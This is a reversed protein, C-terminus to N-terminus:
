LLMPSEVMGVQHNPPITVRCKGYEIKNALRHSYSVKAELPNRGLQKAAFVGFSGLVALALVSSLSLLRRGRRYFSVAVYALTLISGITVVLIAAIIQKMVVSLSERQRNTGYFVEVERSKANSTQSAGEVNPFEAMPPVGAGALSDMAAAPRLLEAAENGSSAPEEAGVAAVKDGEDARHLLEVASQQSLALGGWSEEDAAGLGDPSLLSALRARGVESIRDSQMLGLLIDLAELQQEIDSAINPHWYGSLVSCFNQGLQPEEVLMLLRNWDPNPLECALACCALRQVDYLQANETQDALWPAISSGMESLAETIVVDSYSENLMSLLADFAVRSEGCLHMAYAANAQVLKNPSELGLIAASKAAAPDIQAAALLCSAQLQPDEIPQCNYLVRLILPQAAKGMAGLAGAAAVRVEIPSSTNSLINACLAQAEMSNTGSVSLARLWTVQSVLDSSSQTANIIASLGKPGIAGLAKAAAVKIYLEETDSSVIGVLEHLAVESRSGFRQLAKVSSLRADPNSNKLNAQITAIAQVAPEGIQGCADILIPLLASDSPTSALWGIISQVTTPSDSIQALARVGTMQFSEDSSSALAAVLKAEASRADKGINYLAEAADQQVAADSLLVSLWEVCAQRDFSSRSLSNVAALRIEYPQRADQGWAKLQDFTEQNSCEIQEVIRHAYDPLIGDVAVGHITSQLDAQITEDWIATAYEFLMSDLQTAEFKLVNMRIEAPFRHHDRLRRIVQMRSIMENPEYLGVVLDSADFPSSNATGPPTQIPALQVTEQPLTEPAPAVQSRLIGLISEVVARHRSQHEFLKVLELSKELIEITKSRDSETLNMPIQGALQATSWQASYRAHESNDNLLPQLAAISAIVDTSVRALAYAAVVRVDPSSDQLNQILTPVAQSASTGLEALRRAASVKPAPQNQKLRAILPDIGTEQGHSKNALSGWALLFILGTFLCRSLANALM